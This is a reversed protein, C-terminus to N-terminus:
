RGRGSHRWRHSLVVYDLETLVLQRRRKVLV